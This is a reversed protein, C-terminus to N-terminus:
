RSGLWSRVASAMAVAIRSQGLGTIAMIFPVAAPAPAWNETEAEAFQPIKAMVTEQTEQELLAGLRQREPNPIGRM